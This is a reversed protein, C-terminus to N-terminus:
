LKQYIRKNKIYGGCTGSIFNYWSGKNETCYHAVNPRFKYTYYITKISNLDQITDAIHSSNKCSDCLLSRRTGGLNFVTAYYGFNLKM